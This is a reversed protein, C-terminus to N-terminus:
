QSDRRSLDTLERSFSIPDVVYMLKSAKLLSFMGLATTFTFSIALFITNLFTRESDKLALMNKVLTHLIVGLPLFVCLALTLLRKIYM